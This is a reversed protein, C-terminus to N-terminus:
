FTGLYLNKAFDRFKLTAFYVCRLIAFHVHRSFKMRYPHFYEIVVDKCDNYDGLEKRKAESDSGEPYFFSSAYGSQDFKPILARM